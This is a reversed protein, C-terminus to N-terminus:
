MQEETLYKPLLKVHTLCLLVQGTALVHKYVKKETLGSCETSTIVTGKCCLSGPNNELISWLWDQTLCSINCIFIHDLLQSIILSYTQIYFTSCHTGGEDVKKIEWERPGTQFQDHM